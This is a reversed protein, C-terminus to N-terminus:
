RQIFRLGTEDEYVGLSRVNEAWYKKGGGATSKRDKRHESTDSESAMPLCQCSGNLHFTAMNRASQYVLHLKTPYYVAGRARNKYPLAACHRCRIGVQGLVVPHNRGQANSSIDEPSAEFLEIQKRIWRQYPSLIDDDKDLYLIVPPHHQVISKGASGIRQSASSSAAAESPTSYSSNTVASVASNLRLPAALTTNDERNRSSSGADYIQTLLAEYPNQRSDLFPRRAHIASYNQVTTGHLYRALSQAALSNRIESQVRSLNRLSMPTQSLDFQQGIGPQPHNSQGFPITLQQSVQSSPNQFNRILQETLDNSINRRPLFLSTNLALHGRLSRMADDHNISQASTLTDRVSATVASAPFLMNHVQEATLEATNNARIAAEGPPHIPISTSSPLLPLNPSFRLLSTVVDDDLFSLFSRRDDRLDCDLSTRVPRQEAPLKKDLVIFLSVLV